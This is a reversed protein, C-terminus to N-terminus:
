VDQRDPVLPLRVGLSVVGDVPREPPLALGKGAVAANVGANVGARIVAKKMEAIFEFTKGTNAVSFCEFLKACLGATAAAIAM